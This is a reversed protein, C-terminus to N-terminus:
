AKQPGLPVVDMKSYKKPKDGYYSSRARILPIALTDEFATVHRTRTTRMANMVRASRSDPVTRMDEGEGLATLAQMRQQLRLKEPYEFSFFTQLKTAAAALGAVGSIISVLLSAAVRHQAFAPDKRSSEFLVVNAITMPIHEMVLKVAVASITMETMAIRHLMDATADKEMRIIKALDTPKLRAGASKVPLVVQSTISTSVSATEAAPPVGEEDVLEATRTAETRGRYEVEENIRRVLRMSSFVSPVLTATLCIIYAIRMNTSIVDLNTTAIFICSILDSGLDVCELFFGMVPVAINTSAKMVLELAAEEKRAAYALTCGLIMILAVGGGILAWFEDADIALDEEKEETEPPVYPVQGLSKRYGNLTYYPDNAASDAATMIENFRATLAVSFAAIAADVDAETTAGADGRTGAYEPREFGDETTTNGYWFAKLEDDFADLYDQANPLRLPLAMNLHDLAWTTVDRACDIFAQEVGEEEMAESLYNVQSSMFPDICGGNMLFDTSNSLISRIFQFATQTTPDEYADGTGHYAIGLLRRAVPIPAHNVDRMVANPDEICTEGFVCDVLAEESFDYVVPSGPMKFPVFDNGNADQSLDPDCGRDMFIPCTVSPNDTFDGNPVFATVNALRQLIRAAELFGDTEFNTHLEGPVATHNFLFGQDPGERQLMTAFITFAFEQLLEWSDICIGPSNLQSASAEAVDILDNWTSLTGDTPLTASDSTMRVPCLFDADLPAGYFHGDYRLDHERLGYFIDLYWSEIDLTSMMPELPLLRGSEALAPLWTDRFVLIDFLGSGMTDSTGLDQQLEELFADNMKFTTETQDKEGMVIINVDSEEPDGNFM